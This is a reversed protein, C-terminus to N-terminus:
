EQPAIHTKTVREHWCLGDEDLFSWAYGMGLSAASVIACLVRARRITRSPSTGDFRRIQLRMFRLGPTTGSHVILLYQYSAWLLALLGASGGALHLVTLGAGTIRLFVGGFLGAAVAIVAVDVAVALLRKRVVASRLPMDIGPRREPEPTAAGEITIGGLAPPPPVIEPAELIRPRDLISEALDYAHVPPEYAWKPFEIIKATAEQLRIEAKKPRSESAVPEVAEAAQTAPEAYDMALAQRSVASPQPIVQAPAAVASSELAASSWTTGPPDFKLRLSPYRPARPRRKAHYRHLRESVEKRWSSGDEGPLLDPQDPVADRDRASCLESGPGSIEPAGNLEGFASV